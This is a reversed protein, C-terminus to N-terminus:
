KGSWKRAFADHFQGVVLECLGNRNCLINDLQLNYKKMVELSAFLLFADELRRRDLMQRAELLDSLESPKDRGFVFSIPKCLHSTFSGQLIFSIAKLVIVSFLTLYMEITVMAVTPFEM